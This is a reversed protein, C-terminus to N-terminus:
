NVFIIQKSSFHIESFFWNLKHWSPSNMMEREIELFTFFSCIWQVPHGLCRQHSRSDAHSQGLRVCMANINYDIECFTKRVSLLRTTCAIGDRVLRDSKDNWMRLLENVSNNKRKQTSIAIQQAYEKSEPPIYFTRFTIHKITCHVAASWNPLTSSWTSTTEVSWVDSCRFGHAPHFNFAFLSFRM